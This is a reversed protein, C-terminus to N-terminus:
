DVTRKIYLNHASHTFKKNNSTRENTFTFTSHPTLLPCRQFKYSSSQTQSSSFICFFFFHQSSKKISCLALIFFFSLFICMFYEVVVKRYMHFANFPYQSTAVATAFFPYNKNKQKNNTQKNNNNGREVRETHTHTLLKLVFYLFFLVFIRGPLFYCFLLLLLLLLDEKKPIEM